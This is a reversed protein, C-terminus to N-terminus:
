LRKFIAMKMLEIVDGSGEPVELISLRLNQEGAALKMQGVPMIGRGSPLVIDLQSSGVELRVKSGAAFKQAELSVAYTGTTVVDVQITQADGPASWNRSNHTHTLVNGEDRISSCFPVYSGALVEGVTEWSDYEPHGIHFRPQGFARGTAQMEMYAQRMRDGMSQILEPHLDAINRSEGPDTALDYLEPADQRNKVLKYYGRYWSVIQNKYEIDKPDTAGNRSWGEDKFPAWYPKFLDRPSEWDQKSGTLFPRLSTGHIPLGGKPQKEGIIELVTPLVDTVDALADVQGPKFNGPWRFFCPVRHGNEWINGKQGRMGANRSAMEEPTLEGANPCNKNPGNDSIFLVLTDEALGADDLAALLRGINHDMHDIMGNILAFEDSCGKSKYKEVYAEPAVWPSHPSMYAMWMFFPQEGRDRTIWDIAIDTLCKDAHGETPMFKGNHNVRTNNHHYLQAVWADNFGRNWPLWAGARGSHWKGVMGTDYGADRLVDAITLEDLRLYDRALHVDWVGTEYHNRGTLLSARTTACVPTVHFQDLRVSQKALRDLNPTELVTNGHFSLDGYGQDDTVIFLINPRTAAISSISLLALVLALFSKTMLSNIIELSKMVSDDM